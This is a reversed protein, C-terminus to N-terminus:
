VTSNDAGNGGSASRMGGGEQVIGLNDRDIQLVLLFAGAFGVLFVVFVVFFRSIDQKVIRFLTYIYTSSWRHVPTCYSNIFCKSVAVDELVTNIGIIVIMNKVCYM